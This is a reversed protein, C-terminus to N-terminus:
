KQCLRYEVVRCKDGYRNKVERDVSQIMYGDQRLEFIRGSLRTIGYRDFADLTTIGRHTKLHKLIQKKQSM